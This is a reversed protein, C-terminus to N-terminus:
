NLTQPLASSAPLVPGIQDIVGSALPGTSLSPAGFSLYLSLFKFYYYAALFLNSVTLPLSVLDTNWKPLTTSHGRLIPHHRVVLTKKSSSVSKINWESNHLSALVPSIYYRSISTLILAVAIQVLQFTKIYKNCCGSLLPNCYDM